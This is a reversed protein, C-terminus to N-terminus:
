TQLFILFFHCEVRDVSFGFDGLQLSAKPLYRDKYIYLQLVDDLTYLFSLWM